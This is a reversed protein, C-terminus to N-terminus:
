GKKEEILELLSPIEYEILNSIKRAQKTDDRDFFKGYELHIRGNHRNINLWGTYVATIIKEIDARVSKLLGDSIIQFDPDDEISVTNLGLAHLVEICPSDAKIDEKTYLESAVHQYVEYAEEGDAIGLNKILEYLYRPGGYRVAYINDFVRIIRAGNLHGYWLVADHTNNVLCSIQIKGLELSYKEYLKQNM